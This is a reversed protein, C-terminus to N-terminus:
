CLDLLLLRGSSSLLFCLLLSLFLLSTNLKGLVSRHLLALVVHHGHHAEASEARGLLLNRAVRGLSTIVLIDPVQIRVVWSTINYYM